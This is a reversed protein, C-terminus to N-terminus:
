PQDEASVPPTGAALGLTCPLRGCDAAPVEVFVGLM